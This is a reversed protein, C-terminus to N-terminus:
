ATHSMWRGRRMLVPEGPLREQLEARTKESVAQVVAASHGRRGAAFRRQLLRTSGGLGSALRIGAIKAAM